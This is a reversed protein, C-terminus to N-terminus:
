DLTFSIVCIYFSFRWSLLLSSLSVPKKPYGGRILRSEIKIFPNSFKKLVQVPEPIIWGM